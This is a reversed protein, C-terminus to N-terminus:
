KKKIIKKLKEKHRDYALKIAIKESFKLKAAAKKIDDTNEPDEINELAAAIAKHGHEKLAETLTKRCKAASVCETVSKAEVFNASTFMAMTLVIMLKKLNLKM